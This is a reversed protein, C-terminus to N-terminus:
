SDLEAPHCYRPLITGPSFSYKQDNPRSYPLAYANSNVQRSDQRMPVPQQMGDAAVHGYHLKYLMCLRMATRKSHLSKWGLENLIAGACATRDYNKVVFRSSRQQVMEIKRNNINTYPDWVAAAYELLPRVLGFYALTKIKPSNVRLNQRLFALTSNAKGTINEVLCNWSIGSRLTVGLYHRSILIRNSLSVSMCSLSVNRAM